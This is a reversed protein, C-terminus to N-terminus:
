QNNYALMWYKILVSADQSGTEQFLLATRMWKVHGDCFAVNCGGSHRLTFDSHYSQDFSGTADATMVLQDPKPISSLQLPGGSLTVSAVFPPSLAYGFANDNLGYSANSALQSPDSANFASTDIAVGNLNKDANADPCIECGNSHLYPQIVYLWAHSSPGGSNDNYYNYVFPFTEDSDGAYQLIALAMQKENSACTSQRAKERATAFVPFLTAALISIIAIVVLLEILTSGDRRTM